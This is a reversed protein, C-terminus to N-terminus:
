IEFDIIIASIADLLGHSWRATPGPDHVALDRDHPSRALEVGVLEGSTRACIFDPSEGSSSFTMTTGTITSYADLFYGLHQEEIM